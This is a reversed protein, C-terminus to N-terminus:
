ARLFSVIQWILSGLLGLVALILIWFGTATLYEDEYRYLLLNILDQDDPIESDYEVQM